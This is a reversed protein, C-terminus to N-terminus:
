KLAAEIEAQTILEGNEKRFTKFTEFIIEKSFMKFPNLATMLFEDFGISGGQDTDVCALVADMETADIDKVGYEWFSQLLEERKLEGTSTKNLHFFTRRYAYM